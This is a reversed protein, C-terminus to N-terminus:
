NMLLDLRLGELLRQALIIGLILIVPSIDIGGLDPLRQQLPRLFPATLRDLGEYLGRVFRNHMNVVNFAILWSLIAQIIIVWIALQLVYILFVVLQALMNM